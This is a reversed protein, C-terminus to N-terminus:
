LLKRALEDSSEAESTDKGLRDFSFFVFDGGLKVTRVLEDDQKHDPTRIHQGVDLEHFGCPSLQFAEKTFM